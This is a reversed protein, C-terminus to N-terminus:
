RAFYFAIRRARLFFSQRCLRAALAEGAHRQQSPTLRRRRQRLAARLQSKNDPM